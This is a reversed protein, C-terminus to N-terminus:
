KGRGPRRTSVFGYAGLLAGCVGVLVAAGPHHAGWALVNLLDAPLNRM